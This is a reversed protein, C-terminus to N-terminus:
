TSSLLDAFSPRGRRRRTVPNCNPAIWYTTLRRRNQRTARVKDPTWNLLRLALALTAADIDFARMLEVLRYPRRPAHTRQWQGVTLYARIQHQTM